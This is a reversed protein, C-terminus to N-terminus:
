LGWLTCPQDIEATSKNIGTSVSGFSVSLCRLPPEGNVTLKAIIQRGNAVVGSRRTFVAFAEATGIASSGPLQGPFEARINYVRVGDSAPLSLTPRETCRPDSGAALSAFPQGPLLNTGQSFDVRCPGVSGAKASMANLWGALENVAANARDRRLFYTSSSFVVASVMGVVAVTVVMELMTFAQQRRRSRWNPPLGIKALAPKALGMMSLMMM